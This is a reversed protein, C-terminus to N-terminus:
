ARRPALHEGRETAGLGRRFAAFLAQDECRDHRRRTHRAQHGALLLRCRNLLSFSLARSDPQIKFPQKFVLQKLITDDDGDRQRAQKGWWEESGTGTERSAKKKSRIM